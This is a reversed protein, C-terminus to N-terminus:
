ALLGQLIKQAMTENIADEITKISTRLKNEANEYLPYEKMIKREWIRFIIFGTGWVLIMLIMFSSFSTSSPNIQKGITLSVIGVTFWCTFFANVWKNNMSRTGAQELDSLLQKMKSLSLNEEGSLLKEANELLQIKQM